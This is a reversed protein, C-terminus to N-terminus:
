AIKMNEKQEERPKLRKDGNNKTSLNNASFSPLFLYSSKM